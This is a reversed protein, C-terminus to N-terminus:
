ALTGVSRPLGRVAVAGIPTGNTHTGTANLIVRLYRKSGIYGVSYVTDDEAPDDILAFQGSGGANDGIMDAAAVDTYTSDDDSEELELSWYVTGSLTDGSAGVNVIVLCGEYGQLDIDADCTKDATFTDPDIVRVVSLNTKIDRM